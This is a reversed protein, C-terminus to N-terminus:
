FTVGLSVLFSRTQPNTFYEIGFGNSVGVQNTEPDIGDIKNWNFVNRATASLSIDKFPLNNMFSERAFSYSLTVERLKTFTADEISFNYAQNDGFGGGIGHRYWTEDLLVPGGGFDEVNGRVTSGSPIIDGDFNVLNQSTTLRNATEQTTGFRRLVWLSRPSFEGGQSHELLVNLGLSKWKFDFGIGGRWDPNPDGLIEPSLTLQPFGNDDLVFNGSEDKISGTGYLVGLPYGVIARSSVSAGPSLNITETGRLDTVMNDNTAWNLSVNLSMDETELAAYSLDMELGKNEMSGFNGYQTDFGSSPSLDVDLLIGNIENDYYTIGFGLKDDLFRFDAGIEWETKIEPELNPNGKDDDIRFGGGFLSVELPDSYTSYSFGGEALTQFRHPDPQVGVKGWSARFKAFSIFDSNLVTETANWAVDV